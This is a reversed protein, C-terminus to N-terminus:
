KDNVALKKFRTEGPKKPIANVIFQAIANYYEESGLQEINYHGAKKVLILNKEKAGSSDYVAYTEIPPVIEDNDGCIFLTPTKVYKIVESLNLETLEYQLQKEMSRELVIHLILSLHGWKRKAYNDVYRSFDTFPSQAILAECRTDLSAAQIAVAAGIGSAFIAVHNTEPKRFLSDLVIKLDAVAIMGPSFEVGDSTGHARMDIACVNLGRDHMQKMLNLYNIKSQNIDHVILLTNAERDDNQVYWGHLMLGDSTKIDFNKYALGLSAPSFLMPLPRGLSDHPDLKEATFRVYTSDVRVPYILDPTVFFPCAFVFAALLLLLSAISYFFKNLSM